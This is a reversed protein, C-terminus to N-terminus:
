GGRIKRVTAEGMLAPLVSSMLARRDQAREGRSTIEYQRRSVGLRNGRVPGAVKVGRAPWGTRYEALTRVFM